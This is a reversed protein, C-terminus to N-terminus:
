IDFDDGDAVEVDFKMKDETIQYQYDMERKEHKKPLPLPNEILKVSKEKEPEAMKEDMIMKEKEVETESATHEAQNSVFCQQLGIGALISWVFLFQLRSFSIGALMLILLAIWPTCNQLKKQNWFAMILFASIIVILFGERLFSEMYCIVMTNQSFPAYITYGGWVAASESIGRGYLLADLFLAGAFAMNSVVLSLFFLLVSKKRSVNKGIMIGTLFVILTFMVPDLYALIGIMIGASLIGATGAATGADHICYNMVLNVTTYIGILYILLFLCEPTLIFIEEAYAPSFALVSLLFLAPIRGVIKKLLVYSLILTAAQIVIQLWVGVVPKNGLFSMCVSLCLMYLYSLGHRMSEVHEGAKVMAKQYFETVVIRDAGSEVYLCIRYLVGAFVLVGAAIDGWLYRTHASIRHRYAFPLLVRRMLVYCGSILIFLLALFGILDYSIEYGLIQQWFLAGFAALMVGTLCTYLAWLIYSLWTKQYIM